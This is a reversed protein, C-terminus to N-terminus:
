GGADAFLRELRADLEADTLPARPDALSRRVRARILELRAAEEERRHQWLRLADRLAESTSAYEGAEVSARVAELQEPTVTISIKEANHM